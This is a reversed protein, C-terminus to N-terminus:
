LWIRTWGYILSIMLIMLIILFIRDENQQQPDRHDKKM